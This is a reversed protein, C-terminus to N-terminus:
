RGGYGGSSPMSAGHAGLSGGLASDIVARARRMAEMADEARGSDCARQVDNLAEVAERAKNKLPTLDAQGGMYSQGGGGGSGGSSDGGPSSQADGYGDESIQQLLPKSLRNYETLYDAV